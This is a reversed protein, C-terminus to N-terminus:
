TCQGVFNTSTQLKASPFKGEGVHLLHLGLGPGLEPLM